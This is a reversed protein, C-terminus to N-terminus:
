RKMRDSYRWATPMLPTMLYSLYNTILYESMNPSINYKRLEDSYQYCEIIIHKITLTVECATCQTPEEKAM